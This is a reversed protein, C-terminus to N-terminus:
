GRILQVIAAIGVVVIVARLAAPNLRRGYRAGLQAGVISGGAILGAAEWAVDAVAIFILAAVPQRADRPREEARERAAPRGAAGPRPDGAAPHGARRRLLRRLRRRLLRRRPDLRDGPPARASPPRRRARDLRPQLVIAVLAVVIFVPVIARFAEDPLVLLLVAGTIGGLVSALAFRLTRDRQGELERRYGLTGSVGGPVLGVTNSVNATIPSYGVGLLVPFTILTGSGVVTNIAGAAMGAAAVAVIELGTMASSDMGWAPSSAALRTGSVNRRREVFAFRLLECTFIIPTPKPRVPVIDSLPASSCSPAFGQKWMISRIMPSFLSASRCCQILTALPSVTSQSSTKSPQSAVTSQGAQERQSSSM